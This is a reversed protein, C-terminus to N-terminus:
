QRAGAADFSEGPVDAEVEGAEAIQLEAKPLMPELKGKFRLLAVNAMDEDAANGVGEGAAPSAGPAQTLAVLEPAIVQTLAFYADDRIGAQELLRGPLMWSALAEHMAPIPNRPNVLLWTSAQSLMDKGDIFGASHFTDTLAPLHDGYFLLLTPRDRRALLDALRGLEQDAHQLHYLYNQLERKHKGTIGDPVPMADRAAVDAPTVDYPGHAEISIAFLFQPPGADKLRDMIAETMASDAMYQGDMAARTPFDARSAFHDFGIARFATIRNWFGPDNGHLAMTEYGHARLTRVLSPVIKNNMQLYPFQLDDFYRLSLGTLVEFETRITGGGFTPVHLPGSEGQTALRRLHPILDTHEYGKLISPDFFSESQVVVIDPTEGQDQTTSKLRARLAVNSREILQQAASADAQKGAHGQHLHFMLLSSVLGSHDATASASWPELWLYGGGYIKAWGPMGALLTALLALLSVGSWLRKGRTRRAFLPPEIRWAILMAIVSGIVCLYPWPSTPMYSGLLPLGGRRLQGLMHFDAPMLPTGLHNVKLSNIGYVLAQLLFALGFSLLARRSLVLLLAALLLGPLANALLFSPQILAQAPSVGVGGDVLGTLLTFALVLVVIVALRISISRAGPAPPTASM